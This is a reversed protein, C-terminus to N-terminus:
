RWGRCTRQRREVVCGALASAVVLERVGAAIFAHLTGTDALPYDTSLAGIGFSSVRGDAHVFAYHYPIHDVGVHKGFVAAM